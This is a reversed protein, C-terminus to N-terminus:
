ILESTQQANTILLMWLRLRNGAHKFAQISNETHERAGVASVTDAIHLLAVSQACVAMHSNKHMFSGGRHSVHEFFSVQPVFEADVYGACSLM